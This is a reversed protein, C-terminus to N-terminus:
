KQFEASFNSIRQSWTVSISPDPKMGRTVDFCRCFVLCFLFLGLLSPFRLFIQLLPFKTNEIQTRIFYFPIEYIINNGNFPRPVFFLFIFSHKSVIKFCDCFPFKEGTEKRRGEFEVINALEFSDWVLRSISNVARSARCKSAAIWSKGRLHIPVAFSFSFLKRSSYNVVGGADYQPLNRNKMFCNAAASSYAFILPVTKDWHKIDSCVILGRKLIESCITENLHNSPFASFNEEINRFSSAFTNLNEDILESARFNTLLHQSHPFTETDTTLLGSIAVWLKLDRYWRPNFDM